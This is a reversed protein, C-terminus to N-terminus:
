DKVAKEASARFEEYDQLFQQLWEQTEELSQIWNELVERGAATISYVRRAPGSESTDWSSKL